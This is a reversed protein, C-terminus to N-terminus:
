HNFEVGKFNERWEDIQEHAFPVANLGYAKMLPHPTHNARHIDFEKKLLTDVASNLPLPFGPPSPSASAVTSIFVAPVTPSVRSRPAPSNSPLQTQPLTSIAPATPPTTSPCQPTTLSDYSKVIPFM